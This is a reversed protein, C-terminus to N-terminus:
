SADRCMLETIVFIPVQFNVKTRRLEFFSLLGYKISKLKLPFSGRKFLTITQRWYLVSTFFYSNGVQTKRLRKLAQLSEPIKILNSLSSTAQNPVGIKYSYITENIFMLKKEPLALQALFYQDEGLPFKPFTQASILDKRFIYRWIGPNIALDKWDRSRVLRNRLEFEEMQFNFAYIDFEESVHKETFNDLTELFPQDDSDWFAIWRGTAQKIGANRALGASRFVGEVKIIKPFRSQISDLEISTLSDQKDHVIVIQVKQFNVSAMWKALTELKGAMRTVPIIISVIPELNIDTDNPFGM